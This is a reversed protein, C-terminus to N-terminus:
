DSLASRSEVRSVRLVLNEISDPEKVRQIGRVIYVLQDPIRGAVATHAPQCLEPRAKGNIGARVSHVRNPRHTPKVCTVEHVSFARHTSTCWGFRASDRGARRSEPVGPM